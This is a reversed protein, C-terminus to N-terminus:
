SYKKSLPHKEQVLSQLADSAIHTYIQTTSIDAHGLLEQLVRLDAGHSLLHSAFSHRLVHPSVKELAINSDGALKKLMQGLRQRTIHGSKGRSPFLWPSDQEGEDLCALYETIAALAPPNLPVLREKGGKGNIILFPEIVKTNPNTQLASRKMGVLESARLGSAYLIELMAAIRKGDDSEDEHATNLLREVEEETLHKPLTKAHKPGEISMAPNDEREKESTLFKFFQKIATLRRATTAPSFGKGHLHQLYSRITDTDTTEIPTAKCFTQFDSLDRQYSTLTHKAAGREAAMMELFTEIWYSM